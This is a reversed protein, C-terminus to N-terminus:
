YNFVYPTIANPVLGATMTIRGVERVVGWPLQCHHESTHALSLDLLGYVLELQISRGGNLGNM